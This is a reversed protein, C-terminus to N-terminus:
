AAGLQPAAAAKKALRRENRRAQKAADKKPHNRREGVSSPAEKDAAPAEYNHRRTAEIEVGRMADSQLSLTVRKKQVDVEVVRPNVQQDLKFGAAKPSEVYEDALMSIHCFGDSGERRIGRLRVYVGIKTVNVIKGPYRQGVVLESLPIGRNPDFSPNHEGAHKAAPSAQDKAATSTKAHKQTPEEASAEARERKGGKADSVAGGKEHNELRSPLACATCRRADAKKLQNKSFRDEPLSQKCQACAYMRGLPRAGASSLKPNEDGFCM